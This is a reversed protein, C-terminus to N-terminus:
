VKQCDAKFNYKKCSYEAIGADFLDRPYKKKASWVIGAGLIPISLLRTRYFFTAFYGYRWLATKVVHYSVFGGLMYFKRTYARLKIAQLV